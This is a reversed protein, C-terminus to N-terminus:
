DVLSMVPGIIVDGQEQVGRERRGEQRRKKSGQRERGSGQGRTERRKRKGVFAVLVALTGCM